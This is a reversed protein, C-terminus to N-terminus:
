YTKRKLFGEGLVSSTSLTIMFARPDHSYVLEELRKIQINNVVALVVKKPNHTYGGEGSLLTCGRHLKHTIADAICIHQDSIILAMKRQNFVGLFYELTYSSVYIMALSYLVAELPLTALGGGLILANILFNFRGVPFSFRQFVLIAIIDTGGLSGMSHLAIGMGAGMLAGGALAALMPDDVQSLPAIFELGLTLMTAGVLSYWFFRRSVGVWGLVYLPVNLLAYWIAPSPVGLVYYLLMSVGSVGGSLLQNPLAFGNYGAAYLVAGFALLLLNKYIAAPEAPPVIARCNGDPSRDALPAPAGAPPISIM